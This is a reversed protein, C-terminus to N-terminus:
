DKLAPRLYVHLKLPGGVIVSSILRALRADKAADMNKGIVVATPADTAVYSKGGIRSGLGVPVAGRALSWM